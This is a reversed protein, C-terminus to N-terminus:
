FYKKCTEKVLKQSYRYFEIIQWSCQAHHLAWLIRELSALCTWILGPIFNSRGSCLSEHSEKWGTCELLQIYSAAYVEARVRHKHRKCFVASLSCIRGHCGFTLGRAPQNHVHVISREDLPPEQQKPFAVDYISSAERKQHCKLPRLQFIM